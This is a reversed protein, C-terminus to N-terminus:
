FGQYVFQPGGDTPSAVFILFLVSALVLAKALTPWRLIFVEDQYRWQLWDLAIIPILYLLGVFLERWYVIGLNGWELLGRWYYFAYPFELRFPVWALTVLVFTVLTLLCQRWFPQESPTGGIRLSLMRESTIYVGYLAGWLLMNWSMGHWFGSALMTVFAPVVIVLFSQHNPSRAMLSRTLPFYIYDRLWQSLTIHWRSWFESFNRSFYPFNFNPSLEIGFLGSVGRVISTYGAFDNYLAFAYIILWGSLELAGYNYAQELIRNPIGAILSDAIVVKRLYGVVILVLSRALLNEDVVRPKALKPLFSRAREIPGALLKPFYALYLAFDALNHTPFIQKRYVDVLYSINQLSYFSLGIPVLLQLTGTRTHIGIKELWPFLNPLFFENLRFFVLAFINLGIGVWLLQNRRSRQSNLNFALYYTTLTLVILTLAFKWAWTIYFFYSTLLLWYNQHKRPLFYYVALVVLVFFLFNTSIIAM